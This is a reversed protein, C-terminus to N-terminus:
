RYSNKMNDKATEILKRENESVQKLSKDFCNVLAFFTAVQFDKHMSDVAHFSGDVIEFKLGAREGKIGQLYSIFFNLVKIVENKYPSPLQDEPVLTTLQHTGYIDETKSIKLKVHGYHGTYKQFIGEGCIESYDWEKLGKNISNLEVANPFENRLNVKDTM